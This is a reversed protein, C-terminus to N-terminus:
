LGNGRQADGELMSDWAAFIYGVSVATIALYQARVSISRNWWPHLLDDFWHGRLKRIQEGDPLTVLIIKLNVM